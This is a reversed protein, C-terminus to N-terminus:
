GAGGGALDLAVALLPTWRPDELVEGLAGVQAVLAEPPLRRGVHLEALWRVLDLYADDEDVLLAAALHDLHLELDEYTRDIVVEGSAALPAWRAETAAYALDRLRDRDARFAAVSRLDVTATAPEPPGHLCWTRALAAGAEADGAHADAGLAAARAPSSAAGGTLVPLGVARGAAVTRAAGDLNATLTVSVALVDAGSTPLTRALDDAPVGAGLYRVELGAAEFAHSALRGALAHWEGEAAAVAVTGVPAHDPRPTEAELSALVAEAVATAAHEQTVTWRGSQWLDGVHGVAAAIAERLDSAPVGACRLERTRAVAGHRDALAFRELLEAVLRARERAREAPIM